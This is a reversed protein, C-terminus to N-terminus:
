PAAGVAKRRRKSGDPGVRVFPPVVQYNTVMASGLYTKVYHPRGTSHAAKSALTLAEADSDRLLAAERKENAAKTFM